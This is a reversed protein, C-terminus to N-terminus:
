LSLVKATSSPLRNSSNKEFAFALFHNNNPHYFRRIVERVEAVTIESM